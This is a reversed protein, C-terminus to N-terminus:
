DIDLFGKYLDLRLEQLLTEWAPLMLGASGKLTQATRGNNLGQGLVGTNVM